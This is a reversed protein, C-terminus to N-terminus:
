IAAHVGPKGEQICRCVTERGSSLMTISGDTHIYATGHQTRFLGRMTAVWHRREVPIVRRAVLVGSAQNKMCAPDIGQVIYGANIADEESDIYAAGEEFQQGANCLVEIRRRIDQVVDDHVPDRKHQKKGKGSASSSSACGGASRVLNNLISSPMSNGIATKAKSVDISNVNVKNGQACLPFTNVLECVCM